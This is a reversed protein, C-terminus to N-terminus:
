FHGRKTALLFTRNLEEGHRRSHSIPIGRTQPIELPTSLRNNSKEVGRNEMTTAGDNKHQQDCAIKRWRGGCLPCKRHSTLEFKM